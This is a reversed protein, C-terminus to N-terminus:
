KIKCGNTEDIMVNIIEVIINLRLNFCKYAKMKRSYVVLIGKDVCSDFKGIRGDERKIYCKRGFSIFHKVNELRGKWIEYPNKAINKIVMARNQIHITTHVVQTWFIDTLKSDMLMIRAMEQVTRTKREVVGNQQPTRSVSFQRKIGHSIFYDM